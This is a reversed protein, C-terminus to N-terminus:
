LGLTGAEEIIKELQAYQYPLVPSELAQKAYYACNTLKTALATPEPMTLWDRMCKASCLDM